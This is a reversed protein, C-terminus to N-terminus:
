NGECHAKYAADDLLEEFEAPSTLKIKCLWGINDAM